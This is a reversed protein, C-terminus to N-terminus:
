GNWENLGGLAKAVRKLRNRDAADTKKIAGEVCFFRRGGVDVFGGYIRVNFAKVAYVVQDPVGVKGSPFRGERKFAQPPLDDFGEEMLTELIAQIRAIDEDKGKSVQQRVVWRSRIECYAGRGLTVYEGSM